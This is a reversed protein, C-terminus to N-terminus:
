PTGPRRRFAHGRWVTMSPSPTAASRRALISRAMSGFFRSLPDCQRRGGDCRFWLSGVLWRHDGRRAFDDCLSHPDSGRCRRCLHASRATFGGAYANTHWLVPEPRPPQCFELRRQRDRCHGCEDGVPVRLEAPHEDRKTSHGSRAAADARHGGRHAITRSSAAAVSRSGKRSRRCGRRLSRPAHAQGRAGTLVVAVAVAVAGYRLGGTNAAM